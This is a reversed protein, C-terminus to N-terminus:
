READRRKTVKVSRKLRLPAEVTAANGGGETDAKGMLGHFLVTGKLDTELDLGDRLDRIVSGTFRAELTNREGYAANVLGGVTLRALQVGDREAVEDVRCDITVVLGPWVRSLASFDPRWPKGVERPEKGYLHRMSEIALNFASFQRLANEEAPTPKGGPLRFKWGGEELRGVIKRGALQGGSLKPDGAKGGMSFLISRTCEHFEIEQKDTGKSTRTIRDRLLVNAAGQITQNLISLQLKGDKLEITTTEALEAADAGGPKAALVVTQARAGPMLLLIVAACVSTARIMRRSSGFGASVALAFSRDRVALFVTFSVPAAM